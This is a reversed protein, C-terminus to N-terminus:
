LEDHATKPSHNDSPSKRPEDNANERVKVGAVCLCIGFVCVCSSFYIWLLFAVIGGLTGYLANFPAFSTVYALFVSQGILIAVTATLAGAWVESFSTQRSPALRYVMIFGYFLVLWPILSFVPTFAWEPFDLGSILSGRVLRASAPLLTGVLVVSAIIGLLGLSKLPLRWWNYLTSRWLRNTTRILTRLFKLAGWTLLPLAALSINSRAELLGQVAAAVAREQNGTLPTYLNLLQVIERTAAGIEMFLSGVTALLVILPLLSLLLYYAFAAACQGGDVEAWRERALKITQWWGAQKAKRLMTQMLKFGNAFGGGGYPTKISM